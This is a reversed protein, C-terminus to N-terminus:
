GLCIYLMASAFHIWVEEKSTPGAALASKIKFYFIMERMLHNLGQCNVTLVKLNNEDLVKNEM